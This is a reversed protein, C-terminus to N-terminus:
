GREAGKDEGEEDNFGKCLPISGCCACFSILATIISVIAVTRAGGSIKNAISDFCNNTPQENFPRTVYFLRPSCMGQCDLGEEMKKLGEVGNTKFWEQM